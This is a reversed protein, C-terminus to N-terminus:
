RPDVVRLCVLHQLTAGAGQRSARDLRRRSWRRTGQIPMSRAVTASVGGISEGMAVRRSLGRGGAHVAHQHDRRRFHRRQAQRKTMRFVQAAALRSTPELREVARAVAGAHMRAREALAEALLLDRCRAEALRAEACLCGLHRRLHDPRAAPSGTATRCGCAPPPATGPSCV